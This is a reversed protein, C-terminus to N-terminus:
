GEQFQGVASKREWVVLPEWFRDRGDGTEQAMGIEIRNKNRPPPVTDVIM